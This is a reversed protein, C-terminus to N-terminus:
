FPPKGQEDKGLGKGKWGMKQLLRFGVNSPTLKTDLSAQELNETELNETPRHHIPLRFEEEFDEGDFGKLFELCYLM